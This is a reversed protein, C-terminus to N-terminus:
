AQSDTEFSYQGEATIRREADPLKSVASRVPIATEFQSSDTSKTLGPDGRLREAWTQETRSFRVDRGSEHIAPNSNGYVPHGLLYLILYSAFWVRFERTQM